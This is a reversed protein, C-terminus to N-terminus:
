EQNKNENFEEPEGSIEPEDAPLGAGQDSNIIRNIKSNKVDKSFKEVEKFVRDGTIKYAHRVISVLERFVFIGLVGNTMSLLNNAAELPDMKFVIIDVHYFLYIITIYILLKEIPDGLRKQDFVDYLIRFNDAITLDNKKCRAIKLKKATKFQAYISYFTDFVVVVFLFIVHLKLPIFFSTLAVSFNVYWPISVIDHVTRALTDPTNLLIKAANTKFIM